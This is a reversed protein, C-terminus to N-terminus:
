REDIFAVEGFDMDANHYTKAIQPSWLARDVFTLLWLLLHERVYM